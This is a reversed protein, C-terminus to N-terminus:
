VISPNLYILLVNKIGVNTGGKCDWYFFICVMKYDKELM